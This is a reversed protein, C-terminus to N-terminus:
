AQEQNREWLASTQHLSETTGDRYRVRLDFPAAMGGVNRVQVAYGGASPAVSGVALDIYHNSFFWNNWFWNLNRGTVDNISNFFDWPLPHKGNWRSMYGHLARRFEADGLMDKLALYGLAPKGYANNGYASGGLVDAPTVIPLDELPSPDNIWRKVRFDRFFEAAREPGVDHQGILYELATAWGEDMFAYRTENIGMYFPFYTHAIEHEAVFRSITTDEQPSDNVMMPYEMDASGEVITSKEYPYPVGPWRHSFFDLADRGFRAMHHFDASTDQYASQVSARRHTADDVVVSTGDWDYHDSLAFTVDPIHSARFRWENMAGTRTVRGAATEAGSAIRVVADSTLSQQYRALPEPQLVAGPNLLTGTGWVVYNAPARVTVEYDNFDSYFEQRDNFEMTDWGDADDYVSVRPYFYALFYTTSDLMGERGAERSMDYHWVFSLRVSDHPLLPAPLKVTRNTFIGADDGWTVARGNVGFSDVHVGQTLYDASAGGARTAGPKHINMFLKFHLSALTDPSDNHYVIQETGRVTREPPAATVTIAYRAHNQWYAAGPRGSPSRTGAAYAQRVARPMYLQASLPGASLALAAILPLLPRLAKARLTLLTSEM